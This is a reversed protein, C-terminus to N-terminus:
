RGRSCLREPLVGFVVRAAKPLSRQLESTVVRRPM